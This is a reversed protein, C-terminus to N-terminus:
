AITYDTGIEGECAVPFDPLWPPTTGMIGLMKALTVAETGEPALAPWSDHVNSVLRIGQEEMRCAQWMLLQFALGQALNETLSGGYIRTKVMNRGRPRDYVFEFKGYDNLEQRLNSYRLIFGSPMTISPVVEDTGCVPMHGYTFIDANPGGFSGSGGQVLDAIIAQCLAWFNVINSNSIRYVYHAHKAIERHQDLDEHLKAGQRLLTDSFKRWGVGYGASLVATKGVNRFTKLKKDGAKAGAAIEEWPIDFAKEAMQSYPDEGKRFADLLDQQDALYALLRAEIQSSDASVL